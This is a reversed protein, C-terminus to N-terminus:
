DCSTSWCCVFGPLEVAPQQTRDCCEPQTNCFCAQLTAADSSTPSADLNTPSADLNTPSADPSDENTLVEEDEDQTTTGDCASLVSAGGLIVLVNFLRGLKLKTMAAM